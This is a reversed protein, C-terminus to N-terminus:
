FDNQITNISHTESVHHKIRNLTIKSPYLISIKGEHAQAQKAILKSVRQRVSVCVSILLCRTSESFIFM